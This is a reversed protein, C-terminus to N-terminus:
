EIEATVKGNVEKLTVKDAGALNVKDFRVALGADDVVNIDWTQSKADKPFKVRLDKGAKLVAGESLLNGDWDKNNSATIYVAEFSRGTHNALVFDLDSAAARGLCFLAILPLLFKM